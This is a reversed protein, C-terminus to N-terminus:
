ETESETELETEIPRRTESDLIFANAIFDQETMGYLTEVTETSVVHVAKVEDTEVLEKVAKLLKNTDAYTRPLTVEKTFPEAKTIDLCMVNVKTTQITRTVMPKRAM